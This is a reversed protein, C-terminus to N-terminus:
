IVFELTNRWLFVSCLKCDAVNLLLGFGQDLTCGHAGKYSKVTVASHTTTFTLLSIGSRWKNKMIVPSTTWFTIPLFQGQKWIYKKFKTWMRSCGYGKRYKCFFSHNKKVKSSCKVHRLDSTLIMISKKTFKRIIILRKREIISNEVKWPNIRSKLFDIQQSSNSSLWSTILIWLDFSLCCLSWFFFSLLVFLSRCFMCIFNFLHRFRVQNYQVSKLIKFMDLGFGSDPTM